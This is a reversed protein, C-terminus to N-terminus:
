QVAMKATTFDISGTSDQSEVLIKAEYLKGLQLGLMEWQTFHQSISIHGCKRATRRISFYQDFTMNDGTIAPKNTRTNKWVDYTEGDVDITGVSTRPTGDSATGGPMTSGWDDLIYYERLPSVTWGYIGIYVLGTSETTTEAFDASITGLQTHTKTQDFSLGIRGLFDEVNTWTASFTADVGYVTMCGTGNGSAWLEYSYNGGSVNGKSNSCYQKGGTPKTAPPCSTGGGAGGSRGGASTGGTGASTGGTGAVGGDNARGGTGTVGAGGPAGGTSPSGGPGAVGAGGGAGASGLTGAGGAVAPSGAHGSPGTGGQASVGATGSSSSGALAGSSGGTGMGSTSGGVGVSGGAGAGGGDGDSSTNDCGALAAMALLATVGGFSGRAERQRFMVTSCARAKPDPDFDPLVSLRAAFKENQL